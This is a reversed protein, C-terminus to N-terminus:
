PAVSRVIKTPSLLSRLTTITNAFARENALHQDLAEVVRWDHLVLKRRRYADREQTVQSGHTFFPSAELALRETPWGFDVEIDENRGVKVNYNPVWGTLGAKDLWRAVNREKGSRHGMGGTRAALMELLAQRGHVAHPSTRDILTLLAEVTTLRHALCHDLCRVLTAEDVFRPLLLLTAAPTAVRAGLWKSNPPAVSQRVATIGPIRVVRDKSVSLAIHNSVVALPLPLQHVIAASTAAIISGPVALSAALVRQVPTADFPALRMVQPFLTVLAGADRRRALAHKDIGSCEAQHVTILGLQKRAIARIRADLDFTSHAHRM